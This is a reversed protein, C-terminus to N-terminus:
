GGATRLRYLICRQARLATEAGVGNAEPFPSGHKARETRADNRECDRGDGKGGATAARLEGADDLRAFLFHDAAVRRPLLCKARQDILRHDIQEAAVFGRGGRDM